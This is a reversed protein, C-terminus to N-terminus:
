LLLVTGSFLNMTTYKRRPLEGANSNKIGVNQLVRDTGDEYALLYRSSSPVSLTNLFMPM